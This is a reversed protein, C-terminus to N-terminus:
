EVNLKGVHNAILQEGIAGEVSVGKITLEEVNDFYMGVKLFEQMFERM